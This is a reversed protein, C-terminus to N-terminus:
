KVNVDLWAHWSFFIPIASFFGLVKKKFVGIELFSARRATNVWYPHLLSALMRPGKLFIIELLLARLDSSRKGVASKGKLLLISNYFQLTKM